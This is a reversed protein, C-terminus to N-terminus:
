DIEEFRNYVGLLPILYEQDITETFFSRVSYKDVFPALPRLDHNM